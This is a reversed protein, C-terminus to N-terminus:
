KIGALESEIRSETGDAFGESWDPHEEEKRGWTGKNEYGADYGAWYEKSKTTDTKSM